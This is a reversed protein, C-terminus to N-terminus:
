NRLRRWGIVVSSVSITLGALMLLWMVIDWLPRHAILWRFDLSHFANFLWRHIRDSHRIWGIMRGTQPDVHVWTRDADDFKFRLVPMTRADRRSYWYADERVLRQTEILKADHLLHPAAAILAAENLTRPDGTLGDIVTTRSQGDVVVFQPRNLAWVLTAERADPAAIQQLVTLLTDFDPESNGAFAAVGVAVKRADFEHEWPVPPGMSLWGSVVWTLLTIGGVLGALHHWAMWGRYPTISVGQRRRARLRDIGLWLGTAAGFIGFGSTWMVVQSWAAPHERLERFYFWHLVAGVWNWARERATTDLVIEGTRSSVYIETGAVDRMLIRYLPRHPEFSQSVSWQDNAITTVSQPTAAPDAARAIEMAAKADVHEIVRGDIASVSRLPWGASAVRYVPEDLMMTLKFSRPYEDLSLGRLVAQPMIM